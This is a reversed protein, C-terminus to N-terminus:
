GIASKAAPPSVRRITSALASPVDHDGVVGFPPQLVPDQVGRVAPHAQTVEQAAQLPAMVPHQYIDSARNARM